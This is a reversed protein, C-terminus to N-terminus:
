TSRRTRDRLRDNMVQKRLRSWRFNRDNPKPASAILRIGLWAAAVPVSTAAAATVIAAPTSFWAVIAIPLVAVSQTLWAAWWWGAIRRRSDSREFLDAACQYLYWYNVIPVLFGLLTWIPKDRAPIGLRQGFTAANTAFSEGSEDLL